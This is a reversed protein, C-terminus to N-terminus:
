VFAGFGSKGFFCFQYAWINNEEACFTCYNLYCLSVFTKFKCTCDTALSKDKGILGYKRRADSNYKKLKNQINCFNLKGNAYVICWPPSRNMMKFWFWVVKGLLVQKEWSLSGKRCKSTSTCSIAFTAYYTQSCPYTNNGCKYNITLVLYLLLCALFIRNTILPIMLEFYVKQTSPIQKQVQCPPKVSLHLVQSERVFKISWIEKM